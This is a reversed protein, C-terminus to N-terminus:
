QHSEAPDAQVGLGSVLPGFERHPVHSTAAKLAGLAAARNDLATAMGALLITRATVLRVSREITWPEPVLNARWREALSPVFLEALRRQAVNGRPRGDAFAVAGFRMSLLRLVILPSWGTAFPRRAFDALKRAGIRAAGRLSEFWLPEERAPNVRDVRPTGAPSFPSGCSTCEVKKGSSSGRASPSEPAHPLETVPGATFACSCSPPARGLAWRTQYTPRSDAWGLCLSLLHSLNSIRTTISQEQQTTIIWGGGGSM